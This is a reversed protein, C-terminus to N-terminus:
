TLTTTSPSQHQGVDPLVFHQWIFFCEPILHIDVCDCLRVTTKTTHWKNVVVVVVFFLRYSQTYKEYFYSAFPSIRSRSDFDNYCFWQMLGSACTWSLWLVFLKYFHLFQFRNLVVILFNMNSRFETRFETIQDRMARSSHRREKWNRRLLYWQLCNCVAVFM